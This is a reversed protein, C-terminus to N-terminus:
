RWDWGLIRAYWRTRRVEALEAAVLAAVQAQRAQIRAWREPNEQRRLLDLARRRARAKQEGRWTDVCMWAVLVAGFIAFLITFHWLTQAQAALGSQAGM